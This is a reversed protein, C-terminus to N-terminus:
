AACLKSSRTSQGVFIDGILFDCGTQSHKTLREELQEIASTTLFELVPLVKLFVGM